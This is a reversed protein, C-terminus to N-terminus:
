LDDMSITAENAKATLQKEIHALRGAIETAVSNSADEAAIMALLKTADDAKALGHNKAALAGFRNSVFQHLVLVQAATKGATTWREANAVKTASDKYWSEAQERTFTISGRSTATEEGWALLAPVTFAALEVQRLMPSEALMDRLKDSGLKALAGRLIDTLSQNRENNVSSALEGWHNAPLVVRRIRDADAIPAEKTSRRDASLQVEGLQMNTAAVTDITVCNNNIITM